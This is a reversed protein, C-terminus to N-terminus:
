HHVYNCAFIFLLLGFELSVFHPLVKVNLDKQAFSSCAQFSESPNGLKNGRVKVSDVVFGTASFSWWFGGGCLM